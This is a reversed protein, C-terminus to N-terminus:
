QSQEKNVIKYVLFNMGLKLIIQINASYVQTRNVPAVCLLLCHEVEMM